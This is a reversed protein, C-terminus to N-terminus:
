HERKDKSFILMDNIYALYFDDLHDMLVTNIYRQFTALGNCLRFPLVVPKFSGYRTRFAAWAMFQPEM